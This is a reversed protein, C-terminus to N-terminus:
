RRSEFRLGRVGCDSASVALWEAVSVQLTVVPISKLIHIFKSMLRCSLQMCNVSRVLYEYFSELRSSLMKTLDSPRSYLEVAHVTADHMDRLGLDRGRARGERTRM